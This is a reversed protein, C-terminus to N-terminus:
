TLPGKETREGPPQRRAPAKTTSVHNINGGDAVWTM